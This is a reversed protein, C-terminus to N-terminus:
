EYGDLIGSLTKSDFNQYTGKMSKHRRLLNTVVRGKDTIKVRQNALSIIELFGVVELDDLVAWDDHGKIKDEKTKTSNDDHWKLDGCAQGKLLAHRNENCRMHSRELIGQYDVCRTEVYALLSWHDKSWKDIGLCNM